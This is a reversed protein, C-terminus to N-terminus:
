LCLLSTNELYFRIRSLFKAALAGDMLRHDVSLCLNMLPRVVIRDDDLVAPLRRISSVALIGSEPPNIIATFFNIDYMGLNSVTFTGNQLEDIDLRGSRARAIIDRCKEAMTRLSLKQADRVKPVMLGSPTDVAVGLNVNSFRHIGDDRLSTNVDPFDVIAKVVSFLIIPNLGVNIERGVENIESIKKKLALASTMDVTSQFYIHPAERSSKALHEGTIKRVGSYPLVEENNPPASNIAAEVDAKMIRKGCSVPISDIDIGRNIAMRQATPTIKAQDNKRELFAKVTNENIIEGDPIIESPDIGLEIIMRKARPSIPIRGATNKIQPTEIALSVSSSDRKADTGCSKSIGLVSERTMERYMEPIEEDAKRTIYGIVKGIPVIDGTEILLKRVVGQAPTDVVMSIKDTLVEMLPESNEVSDGEAKFWKVLQGESQTNSLKPMIIETLM